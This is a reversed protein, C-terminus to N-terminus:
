ATSPWIEAASILRAAADWHRSFRLFAALNTGLFTLDRDPSGRCVLCSQAPNKRGPCNRYLRKFHAASTKRRVRDAIPNSGVKPQFNNYQLSNSSSGTMSISSVDSAMDVDDYRVM